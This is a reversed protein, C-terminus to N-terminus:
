FEFDGQNLTTKLYGGAVGDIVYYEYGQMFVDGYGLFGSTLILNNLLCSSVAM